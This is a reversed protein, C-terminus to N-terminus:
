PAHRRIATATNRRRSARCPQQQEEHFRRAGEHGGPGVSEGVSSEFPDYRGAKAEALMLRFEETSADITIPCPIPGLPNLIAPCKVKIKPTQAKLWGIEKAFEEGCEPVQIAL